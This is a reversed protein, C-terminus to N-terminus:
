PLSGLILNYVQVYKKGIAEYSFKNQANTAIQRSEYQTTYNEIMTGIAQELAVADNSPVLIGNNEDIVEDIGGVRSSVVPVGSCLAELIVCPLNEYRSYMVMFDAQQIYRAVSQYPINGTLTFYNKNSCWNQIQETAPGVLTIRINSNLQAITNLTELLAEPNKQYTMTSVHVINISTPNKLSHDYFFLQTDVANEVVYTPKAGFLAAFRQGLNQTVPVYATCNKFVKKIINKKALSQQNLGDVDEQYYGTWNETIIYPLKYKRQLFLAWLGAKWAINVHVLKPLGHLQKIQEFTTKFVKLYSYASNIKQFWGKQPYYIHYEILNGTETVITEVQSIADDKFAYVNIVKTQTAISIAHRKVFDGEYPNYRHPYWGALHLIYSM